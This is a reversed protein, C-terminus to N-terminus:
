YILSLACTCELYYPVEILKAFEFKLVIVLIGRGVSELGARM